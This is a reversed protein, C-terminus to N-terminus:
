VSGEVARRAGEAFLAELEEMHEDTMHRQRAVQVAQAWTADNAMGDIMQRLEAGLTRRDAHDIAADIVDFVRRIPDSM